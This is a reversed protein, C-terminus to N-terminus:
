DELEMRLREYGPKIVNYILNLRKKYPSFASKMGNLMLKEIDDLTLGWQQSMTWLEKTMSTNSMLRNDTNVTVRFKYRWFIPFPHAAISKAAGTQVNSLLCIELPIRKDLVYQALTGMQIVKGDHEDFVMDEILNTAHGIRHAGCWQLAQWISKMGFAEGAHITINFNERQVLQFADVFRKAPNGSEDGALDFGVVGKDRYSVALEAMELAVEPDMNRMACVILGWKTGCEAEARSMGALVSNMVDELSLGKQTHFGPHFRLEIYSVNDAAADMVGEYAIRELAAKTQMVAITTGFGELYLPLSGRDSGRHFWAALKEPDSEPLDIGEKEALEVITAPRLCGDLHEHLIVKPAKKIIEETLIIAM